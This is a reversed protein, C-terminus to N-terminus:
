VKPFSPVLSNDYEGVLGCINCGKKLKKVGIVEIVSYPASLSRCKGVNLHRCEWWENSM